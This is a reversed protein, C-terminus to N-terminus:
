LNESITIRLLSRVVLRSNPTNITFIHKQRCHFVENKVVFSLLETWQLNMNAFCESVKITNTFDYITALILLAMNM